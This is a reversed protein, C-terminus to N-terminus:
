CNTGDDTSAFLDGEESDGEDPVVQLLDPNTSVNSV